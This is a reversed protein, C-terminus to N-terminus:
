WLDEDRNFLLANQCLVKKASEMLGIIVEYEYSDCDRLILESRSIEDRWKETANGTIKDMSIDLVDALKGLVETSPKKRGTEIMSIYSDTLGTKEALDAQTLHKAKRAAKVIEGTKNLNTAM